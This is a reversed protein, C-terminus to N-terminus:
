LSRMDCFAAARGSLSDSACLAAPNSGFWRTRLQRAMEAREADRLYIELKAAFRFAGDKWFGVCISEALDGAPLFGTIFFEAEQYTKFKSWTGSRKGPEYRSGRRKAVIGELRNERAFEILREPDADIVESLRLCEDAKRLLRRLKEKRSEIPEAILWEGNLALLDFGYFFLSRAARPSYNQLDEFCPKGESDLCVIEGDIIADTAKLNSVANAIRAFKKMLEKGNRSYLAVTPRV